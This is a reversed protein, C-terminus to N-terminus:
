RAACNNCIFLANQGLEKMGLIATKKSQICKEFVLMRFGCTFCHFDEENGPIEKNCTLCYSLSDRTFQLMTRNSMTLSFAWFGHFQREQLRTSLVLDSPHVAVWNWAKLLFTLSVRSVNNQSQALLKYNKMRRKSLRKPHSKGINRKEVRKHRLVTFFSKSETTTSQYLARYKSVTEIGPQKETKMKFHYRKTINVVPLNATKLDRYINPTGDNQYYIISQM